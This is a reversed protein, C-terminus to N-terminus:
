IRAEQSNASQVTGSQSDKRRIIRGSEFHDLAGTKAIAVYLWWSFLGAFLAGSIITTILNVSGYVGNWDIAQLNTVFTYGWCAVGSVAGSIMTVWVNWVSYLVCAFVIEAALGQVLGILFTASGGWSNGLLSEVVAAVVEAYVAAGPKRVIILALPGAFLWLGNMLGLIGPIAADAFALPAYALAAAWYILSCAIAIVSAVTIDVVRWKLNRRAPQDSSVSLPQSSNNM